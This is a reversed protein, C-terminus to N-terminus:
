IHGIIKTIFCNAKDKRGRKEEYRQMSITGDAFITFNKGGFSYFRNKNCKKM